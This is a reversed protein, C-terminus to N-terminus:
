LIQLVEALLCWCRVSNSIRIWSQINIIWNGDMEECVHQARYRARRSCM